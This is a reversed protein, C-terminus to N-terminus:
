YYPKLMFYCIPGTIAVYLWVPFLWTAMKKHKTFQNTFGYSWTLLIFPLSVGALIIHTILIFLYVARLPEGVPFVTEETTFHYAVYCLLFLVSSLMAIGIWLKHANVNRKKIMWVAMILSIAVISNLLAHVPPLFTMSVGEPLPITLNPWRMLGVLILVAATLIWTVVKLTKGLKLNPKRQLYTQIDSM